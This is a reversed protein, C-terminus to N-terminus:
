HTGIRCAHRTSCSVRRWPPFFSSGPCPPRSGGSADRKANEGMQAWKPGKKAFIPGIPPLMFCPALQSLFPTTPYSLSSPVSSPLFFLPPSLAAFSIASLLSVHCLKSYPPFTPTQKQAENRTGSSYHCFSFNHM